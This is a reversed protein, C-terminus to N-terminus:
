TQGASVASQPQLPESVAIPERASNASIFRIHVKRGILTAPQWSMRGLLQRLKATRQTVRWPGRRRMEMAGAIGHVVGKVMPRFRPTFSSRLLFYLTLFIHGPLTLLLALAPMNKVYTWVRNRTGHFLSFESQYGSIASGAHRVVARHLFLCDHGMLQIRFGLDVDECYCFFREDFGGAERFLDAEYIAGAGCGSFCWGDKDPMESAPRGFGGRWPIGFGFYADGAGDMINPKDLAIQASTFAKANPYLDIAQTVEALWDPEAEADPNLLAIWRGCAKAVGLNNGRAFGHNEAELLVQVLPLGSVELRQASGDSSANDVVIVEFDRCTQRRLSDLAGQVFKGGNFNVIVVSFTPRFMSSRADPVM